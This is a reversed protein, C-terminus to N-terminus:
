DAGTLIAAAARCFLTLREIAGDRPQRIWCPTEDGHGDLFGVGFPAVLEGVDFVADGAFRGGF